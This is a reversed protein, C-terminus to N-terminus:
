LEKVHEIPTIKLSKVSSKLFKSAYIGKYGLRKTEKVISDWGFCGRVEGTLGVEGVYVFKNDLSKELVASKMAACVALDVSPDDVKLGGVVNVFVDKNNLYVGGRRSLVACLMDLRSKKIGNAVRRPPVNEAVVDSTLAQVEIFMVRTGKLVASISSGFSNKSEQVFIQSPDKVEVLGDNNMEFVGIESTAGYRNKMSRLVRYMNFEDGHLNLVSDVIHELVKPGAVVGDKTIQGVLIVPVGLRKAAKTLLYGNVRIQSVGGTIGTAQFSELAQISDVICLTPKEKELLNIIKETVMEESFILNKGLNEKGKSLRKYRSYIQSLSEEVSVYLVSGKESINLAAQLLLTSKGVGPEGALLVVQGSVFGGGLVRDLEEFGSSLRTNSREGFGKKLESINVGKAVEKVIGEKPSIENFEELTGWQGCSSCRGEWKLSEYGCQNCLFKM